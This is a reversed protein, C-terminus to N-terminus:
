GNKQERRAQVREAAGEAKKNFAAQKEDIRPKVKSWDEPYNEQMFKAYLDGDQSHDVGQLRLSARCRCNYIEEPDGAPDGPFKIPNDIIGEGFYGDDDQYTGDLLIHTDRTRADHMASWQLRAQIGKAKIDNFSENRGLNEAATMATRANRIAANEDMNTVQQLRQATKPISDGNLISHKVANNLRDKNWTYDKEKNVYKLIDPNQKILAKVTRENYIQFTGVSLGAQDAAAFGLSQTFNYSQALIFPVEANVMTMAVIDTNVLVDTMSNIVQAFKKDDIMRRRVWEEFQEQTIEGAQVQAVMKSYNSQYASFWAKYDSMVDNAANAYVATLNEELLELREDCLRSMYDSNYNSNQRRIPM